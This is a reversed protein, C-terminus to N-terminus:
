RGRRRRQLNLLVVQLGRESDSPVSPDLVSKIVVYGGNCDGLTIDEVAENIVPSDDEAVDSEKHTEPTIDAVLFLSKDVPIDEPGSEPSLANDVKDDKDRRKDCVPSNITAKGCTHCQMEATEFESGFYTYVQM